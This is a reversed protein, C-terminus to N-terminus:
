QGDVGGRLIGTPNGMLTNIIDEVEEPSPTPGYKVTQGDFNPMGDDDLFETVDVEVEETPFFVPLWREPDHSVIAAQIM